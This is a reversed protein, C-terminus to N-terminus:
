QRTNVEVINKLEGPNLNQSLWEWLAKHDGKTMYSSDLIVRRAEPLGTKEHPFTGPPADQPTAKLSIEKQISGGVKESNFSWRDGPNPSPPAKVDWPRGQSDYFETGSPGRKIPSPILGQSEAELGAMAEARTESKTAGGHDPDSALDKFRPDNRYHALVDADTKYSKLRGLQEGPSAVRDLPKSVPLTTKQSTAREVFKGTASDYEMKPLDTRGPNRDYRL